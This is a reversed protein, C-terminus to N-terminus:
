REVSADVADFIHKQSLGVRNVMPGDNTTLMQLDVHGSALVAPEISFFCKTIIVLQSRPINFKKIAKGVIDESKGRSYLDV